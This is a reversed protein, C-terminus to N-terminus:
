SGSGFGLNYLNVGINEESFKIFTANIKLDNIVKQNIKTYPILYPNLKMIKCSVVCNDWRRKNTSSVIREERFLRLM